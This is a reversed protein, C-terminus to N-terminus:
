LWRHNFCVLGAHTHENLTVKFQINADITEPCYGLSLRQLTSSTFIIPRSSPKGTPAVEEEEEVAMKDVDVKGQELYHSPVGTTSNAVLEALHTAKGVLNGIFPLDVALNSIDLERLNNCREVALHWIVNGDVNSDSLDLSEILPASKGLHIRHLQPVGKVSLM